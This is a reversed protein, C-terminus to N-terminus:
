KVERNQYFRRYIKWEKPITSDDITSTQMQSKQAQVQAQDPITKTKLNGDNISIVSISSGKTGSQITSKTAKNQNNNTVSADSAFYLEQPSVMIVKAQKAMAFNQQQAKANIIEQKYIHHPLGFYRDLVPGNELSASIVITVFRDRQRMQKELQRLENRAQAIEKGDAQQQNLMALKQKKELFGEASVAPTVKVEPFKPQQNNKNNANNPLVYTFVYANIEGNMDYYTDSNHLQKTQHYRQVKMDAVFRALGQEVNYEAAYTNVSILVWLTNVILHHIKM